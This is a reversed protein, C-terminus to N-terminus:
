SASAAPISCPWNCSKVRASTPLVGSKSMGVDTALTGISLGELGELRALAYAHDLMTGHTTVRKGPHTITTM